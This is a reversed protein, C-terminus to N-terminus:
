AGVRISWISGISMIYSRMWDMVNKSMGRVKLSYSLIEDEVTVANDGRIGRRYQIAEFINM